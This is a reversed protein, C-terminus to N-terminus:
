ANAVKEDTSNEPTIPKNNIAYKVIEEMTPPKNQGMLPPLKGTRDKAVYEDTAASLLLRMEEDEVRKMYYYVVIDLFAAVEDALKGSLYPKREILGTRQNKDEKVLATFITNMELDRFARVFKRIQEINKGWARMDPVDPDQEEGKAERELIRKAMVASMNFKQAETLSDVIVTRYDHNGAKLEEYLDAIQNWSKVRIVDVEPYSHSLTMSGGEVDIVLVKRMWPVADASGALQTKGVGSKGYILMNVHERATQAKRIPLGALFTPRLLENAV